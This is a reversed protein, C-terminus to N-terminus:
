DGTLKKLTIGHKRLGLFALKLNKKMEESDPIDFTLHIGEKPFTRVPAKFFIAAEDRTIVREGCSQVKDYKHGNRHIIDNLKDEVKQCHEDGNKVNTSCVGYAPCDTCNM